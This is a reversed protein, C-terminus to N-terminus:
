SLVKTVDVYTPVNVLSIKGLKEQLLQLQEVKYDGVLLICCQNSTKHLMTVLSDTCETTIILLSSYQGILSRHTAYLQDCSLEGQLKLLATEEYYRKFDSLSKIQYQKVQTRHYNMLIYSGMQKRAYYNTTAYMVEFLLDEIVIQDQIMSISSRREWTSADFLFCIGEKLPETYRKVYLEQYKASLRWHITRIDDGRHYTRFDGSPIEHQKTSLPPVRKEDIHFNIAEMSPLEIVRPYVEARLEYPKSLSIKYLGFLDYVEIEDIGVSYHGRYLCTIKGTKKHKESPLLSVHAEFDEVTVQSYKDEFKIKLKHYFLIDENTLVYFYSTEKGKTTRWGELIQYVKVRNYVYYMYILSTIPILVSAYLFVYSYSGGIFSAYILSLLICACVIIRNRRMSEQTHYGM